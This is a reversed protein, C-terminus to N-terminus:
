WNAYRGNMYVSDVSATNVNGKAYWVWSGLGMDLDGLIM